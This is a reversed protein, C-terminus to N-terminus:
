DHKENQMLYESSTSLRSEYRHLKMQNPKIQLDAALQLM